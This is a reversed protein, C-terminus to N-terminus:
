SQAPSNGWGFELLRHANCRTIKRIDEPKFAPDAKMTDILAGLQRPKYLDKPADALGDFDTGIAINDFHKTRTKSNIYKITEVIYAIGNRFQFAPFEKLHTDAGTLWFNEVVIGMVGDFECIADIEEDSVNYFNYYPYHNQDYYEFIQRAGVHTFVLPRAPLGQSLRTKAHIRNIAFVEQRAKPTCHTLDVIMGIDLMTEVVRRGIYTLGEDKDPTFEWAMGPTVKSDPSIGDVPSVLDNRFFHALTLLCVGRGHLTKLNAIYPDAPDRTKEDYMRYIRRPNVTDRAQDHLRKVSIPFHRGLAHAGEISHAVPIVGPQQLARDFEEYSCAVVFQLKKQIRNLRSLQAELEDIMTNVQAFNKPSEDEIKNTLGKLLRRLWPWITKLTDWQAESAAELLYHTTLMGRIFGAELQHFDMQMPLLNEGASPCHRHWMKKNFLYIKLSPHCHIDILANYDFGTDNIFCERDAPGTEAGRPTQCSILRPALILGLVTKVSASLFRNRSLKSM